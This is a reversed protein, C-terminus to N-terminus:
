SQQRAIVETTKRAFETELSRIDTLYIRYPFEHGPTAFVNDQLDKPLKWVNLCILDLKQLIPPIYIGGNFLFEVEELEPKRAKRLEDSTLDQELTKKLWTTIREVRPSGNFLDPHSKPPIRIGGNFM